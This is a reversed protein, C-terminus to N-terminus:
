KDRIIEVPEQIPKSSDTYDNIAMSVLAIKNTNNIMEWFNSWSNEKTITDINVNGILNDKCRGIKNGTYGKEKRYNLYFDLAEELTGTFNDPLKIYGDIALIKM